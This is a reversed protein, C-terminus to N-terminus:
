FKFNFVRKAILHVSIDICVQEYGVSDVEHADKLGLLCYKQALPEVSSLGGPLEM